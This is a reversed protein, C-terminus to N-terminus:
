PRTSAAASPCPNSRGGSRSLPHHHPHQYPVIVKAPTPRLLVVAAVVAAEAVVAETQISVTGWAAAGHCRECVRVRAHDFGLRDLLWWGGAAQKRDTSRPNPVISSFGAVSRGVCAWSGGAGRGFVGWCEESM